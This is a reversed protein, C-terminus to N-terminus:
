TKKHQNNKLYGCINDCKSCIPYGRLINDETKEGCCDSYFRKCWCWNKWDFYWTFFNNKDSIDIHLMNLSLDNIGTATNSINKSDKIYKHVIIAKKINQKM